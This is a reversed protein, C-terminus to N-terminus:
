IIRSVRFKISQFLEIWLCPFYCLTRCAQPGLPLLFSSNLSNLTQCSLDPRSVFVPSMVCCSLHVQWQAVYNFIVLTILKLIGLKIGIFFSSALISLFILIEGGDCLLCKLGLLWWKDRQFLFLMFFCMKPVSCIAWNTFHESYWGSFGPKCRLWGCLFAFPSDQM